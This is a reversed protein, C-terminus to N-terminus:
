IARFFKIVEVMAWVIAGAAAITVLWFLYDAMEDRDAQKEIYYNDLKEM